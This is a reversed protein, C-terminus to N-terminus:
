KSSLFCMWDEKKWVITLLSVIKFNYQLQNSLGFLRNRRKRSILCFSIYRATYHCVVRMSVRNTMLGREDSADSCPQIFGSVFPFGTFYFRVLVDM